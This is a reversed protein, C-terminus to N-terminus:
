DAVRLAALEPAEAGCAVDRARSAAYERIGSLVDREIGELLHQPITGASLDKLRGM